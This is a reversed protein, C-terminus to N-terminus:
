MFCKEESHNQLSNKRRWLRNNIVPATTDAQRDTQGDARGCPLYKFIVLFQHDSNHLKICMARWQRVIVSSAKYGGTVFRVASVTHWSIYSKVLLPDILFVM